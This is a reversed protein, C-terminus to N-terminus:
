YATPGRCGRITYLSTEMVLIGKCRGDNFIPCIVAHGPPCLYEFPAGCWDANPDGNDGAAGIVRGSALHLEIDFCLYDGAAPQGAHVLDPVLDHGTVRVVRDGPTISHFTDVRYRCSEGILDMSGGSNALVVGQPHNNALSMNTLAHVAWGSGFAAEVWMTRGLM